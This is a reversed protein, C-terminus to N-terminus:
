VVIHVHHVHICMYAESRLSCARSPPMELPPMELPILLSTHLYPLSLLYMYAGKTRLILQMMLAASVFLHVHSYLM